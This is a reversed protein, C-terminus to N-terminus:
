HCEDKREQINSPLDATKLYRSNLDSESALEAANWSGLLFGIDRLLWADLEMNMHIDASTPKAEDKVPGTNKQGFRFM